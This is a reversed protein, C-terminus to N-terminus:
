RKKSILVESYLKRHLTLNRKESYNEQYRMYFKNSEDEYNSKQHSMFKLKFDELDTYRYNNFGIVESLGDIDTGFVVVKRAMAEVATRGFSERRSTLIFIDAAYYLDSLEKLRLDNFCKVNDKGLIKEIELFFRTCNDIDQQSKDSGIVIIYEFDYNESLFKLIDKALDWNKDYTLRGNLMIVKKTLGHSKKILEKKSKNYQEFYSGATNPIIEVKNSKARYNKIYIEKNISTTTVIKNFNKTILKLIFQNIKSYQNAVGRETYILKCNILKMVKLTEIASMSSVMHTHIIDPKIKRIINYLKFMIKISKSISENILLNDFEELFIIKYKENNEYKKGPMIVYFDYENELGNMIIEMSKQAGGPVSFSYDSIFIIKKM